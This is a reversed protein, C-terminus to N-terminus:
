NQDIEAAVGPNTVSETRGLLRTEDREAYGDPGPSWMRHIIRANADAVWYEPIGAAAYRPAKALDESLTTDSVAPSSLRRHPL